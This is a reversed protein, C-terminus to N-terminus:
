NFHILYNGTRADYEVAEFPVGNRRAIIRVMMRISSEYSPRYHNGRLYKRSLKRAKKM